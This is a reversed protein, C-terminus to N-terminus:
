THHRSNAHERVRVLFRIVLRARYYVCRVRPRPDGWLERMMRSRCASRPSKRRRSKRRLRRVAWESARRRIITRKRTRAVAMASSSPRGNPSRRPRDPRTLRAPPFRFHNTRKRAPRRKSRKQTRPMELRCRRRPHIPCLLFARPKPTHFLFLFDFCFLFSIHILLRIFQRALLHRVHICPQSLRASVSGNRTRSRGRV